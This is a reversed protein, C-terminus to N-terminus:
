ADHNEGGQSSDRPPNPHREKKRTSLATILAGLLSSLVTLLEKNLDGTLVYRAMLALFALGVIVTLVSLADLM